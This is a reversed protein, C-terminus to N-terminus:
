RGETAYLAMTPKSVNYMGHEVSAECARRIEGTQRACISRAVGPNFDAQKEMAGEVCLVRDVERETSCYRGLISPDDTLSALLVSGLGHFCGQRLAGKQALCSKKLAEVGGLETVLTRARYRYCASSVEPHALCPEHSGRSYTPAKPNLLLEMYVGTACYYRMGQQDFGLCAKLATDVERNAAFMLAHGIGHACNGAPHLERMVGTKCFADMQATITPIDSGGFAEGVAGHMCASTCGTGCERLAVGIDKRLAMLARGLEHAEAHCAPNAVELVDLLPRAGLAPLHRAFVERTPGLQKLDEKFRALAVHDPAVQSAPRANGSAMDDALPHPTASPRAAPAGEKSCGNVLAVLVFALAGRRWRVPIDPNM